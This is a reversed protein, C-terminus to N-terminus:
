PQEKGLRSLTTRVWTRGLEKQIEGYCFSGSPHLFAFSVVLPNLACHAEGRGAPLQLAAAQPPAEQVFSTGLLSWPGEEHWSGRVPNPSCLASSATLGEQM